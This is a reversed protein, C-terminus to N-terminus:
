IVRNKVTCIGVWLADTLIVHVLHLGYTHFKLYPLTEFHCAGWGEAWPVQVETCFDKKKKSWSILVISNMVFLLNWRYKWVSTEQRPCTKPPIKLVNQRTLRSGMKVL